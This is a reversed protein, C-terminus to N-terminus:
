PQDFKVQVTVSNEIPEGNLRFPRYRWRRVAAAAANVLLPNGSIIEVSSVSGAKSIHARLVVTGSIRMSRANPPYQPEVRAIQEGGTVGRSVITRELRPVTVSSSLISTVGATNPVVIPLLAPAVPAPGSNSNYSTAVRIPAAPDSIEISSQRQAPKANAVPPKSAVTSVGAAPTPRAPTASNSSQPEKAAPIPVAPAPVMQASQVASPKPAAGSNMWEMGGYAGAALVLAAAIGIGIKRAASSGSPIADAFLEKEPAMIREVAPAAKSSSPRALPASPAPVAAALPMAVDHKVPEQAKDLIPKPSPKPAAIVPTAVTEGPAAAKEIAANKALPRTMTAVPALNVVAPRAFSEPQAPPTAKAVPPADTIPPAPKKPAINADVKTIPAPAPPVLVPKAAATESAAPARPPPVPLVAPKAVAVAPPVVVPAPTITSPVPIKAPKAAAAAGSAVPVAVVQPVLPASVAPPAPPPPFPASVPQTPEPVPRESPPAEIVSSLEDLAGVAEAVRKLLVITSTSFARPRSSFVEVLGTVKGGSIVPVLMASRMNLERCVIRDVRPDTETDVCHVVDGTRTCEWSLGSRANIRVGLQPAIGSSAKCVIGNGDEVAIAVGSAQTMAAIQDVLFNLSQVQEWGSLMIRAELQAVRDRADEDAIAESDVSDEFLPNDESLVWAHIHQKMEPALRTFRIGIRGRLDAWAIEGEGSIIQPSGPLLFRLPTTPTEPPGQVCQVGIGLESVDLLMASRETGLEVICIQEHVATKRYGQRNESSNATLNPM